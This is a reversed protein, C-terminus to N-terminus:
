IKEQEKLRTGISRVEFKDDGIWPPSCWSNCNRFEVSALEDNPNVMLFCFLGSSMSFHGELVQITSMFSLPVLFTSPKGWQARHSKLILHLFRDMYPHSVFDLTWLAPGRGLVLLM